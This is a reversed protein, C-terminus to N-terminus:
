ARHPRELWDRTQMERLRSLTRQFEFALEQGQYLDEPATAASAILTVQHDYLLDILNIFRKVQDSQGDGLRPIGALLLTHYCRAIELYDSAARPGACLAHFDTWLISDAQGRIPIPRDNIRLETAGDGPEPALREFTRALMQEAAEDLPAHYTEAQELFRMRYDTPSDLALVQTHTEIQAIAPLFRARQLGDPYLEGPPSNSTAVLTVGQDFLAGLLGGLVMADGIDWVQVEDLCLVRCDAALERALQLLPNPRGKLRQLERHTQGMFRHFHLRRKQEFPLALYFLDMLWTKGRGVGGWLYLGPIRAAPKGFWRALRGGAPLPQTLQRHLADLHEVIRAQAPDPALRGGALQQQYHARPSMPALM